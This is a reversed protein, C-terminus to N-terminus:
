DDYCLLLTIPFQRRQFKLPIGPDSPILNMGPIYVKQGIYNGTVVIAGIVNNRLEQVILRTGNCLGLSQDINRLHMIPVGKKLVLRHNPIGFCKIENLFEATIWDAEIGVDEDAKYYSDSSLYKKEEGPIQLLM